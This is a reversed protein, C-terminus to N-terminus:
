FASERAFELIPWELSVSARRLRMDPNTAVPHGVVKMLAIDFYSDTYFYSEALEVGNRSAWEQAYMRKGEGYCLPKIIKGTLIGDRVEVQTCVIDKIELLEAMPK